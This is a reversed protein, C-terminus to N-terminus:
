PEWDKGSWQRRAIVDAPRRVLGPLYVGFARLLPRSLTRPFLYYFDLLVALTVTPFPSLSLLLPPTTSHSFASLLQSYDGLM